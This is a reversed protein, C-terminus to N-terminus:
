FQLCQLNGKLNDVSISNNSEIVWDEALLFDYVHIDYYKCLARHTGYMGVNQQLNILNFDNCLKGDSTKKQLHIRDFLSWNRNLNKKKKTKKRKENGQGLEELGVNWATRVFSNGYLMEKEKGKQYFVTIKIESEGRWREQVQIHKKNQNKEWGLSLEHFFRKGCWTCKNKQKEKMFLTTTAFFLWLIDYKELTKKM